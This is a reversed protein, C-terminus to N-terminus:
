ASEGEVIREFYCAASEYDHQQYKLLALDALTRNVSKPNSALVFYSYAQNTLTEFLKNFVEESMAAHEVLPPDLGLCTLDSMDNVNPTRTEEKQGNPSRDDFDSKGLGAFVKGLHTMDVLWGHKRGLSAITRRALM